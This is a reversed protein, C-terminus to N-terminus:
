AKEIKYGFWKVTQILEKDLKRRLNSIYVDIKDDNEFLDEGWIYELIDARSVAIDINQILYSILLFEKNTLKADQWKKLAKKQDFFIEIDKYVFKDVEEFRKMIANIRMLLENLDFPKVLYDDAWCNFWEQKDALQGKATLMIIPVERTERIKKCLTIGDMKPMMIDLLIIDYFTTEFKKLGQIGDTAIDVQYNELALFKKINNAIVKHDEVILIRM